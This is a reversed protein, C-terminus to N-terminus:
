NCHKSIQLTPFINESLIFSVAPLLKRRSEKVQWTSMRVGAVGAEAGCKAWKPSASRIVPMVKWARKHILTSVTRDGGFFDCARDNMHSAREHDKRIKSCRYPWYDHANSMFRLRDRMRFMFKRTRSGDMQADKGYSRHVTRSRSRLQQLTSLIAELRRTLRTALCLSATIM